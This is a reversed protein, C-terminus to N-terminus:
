VAFSCEGMFLHSGNKRFDWLEAKIPMAYDGNCLKQAKVDVKAWVPNLQNMNPETEYVLIPSPDDRRMRYLRVFPNTSHWFFFRTDQIKEACM